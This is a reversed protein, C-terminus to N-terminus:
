ILPFSIPSYRRRRRPVISLGIQDTRLHPTLRCSKEDGGGSSVLQEERKCGEVMGLSNQSAWKATGRSVGRRVAVTEEKQREGDLVGEVVRVRGDVQGVVTDEAKLASGIDDTPERGRRSYRSHVSM